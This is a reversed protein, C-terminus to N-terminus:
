PQQLQKPQVGQVTVQPVIALRDVCQGSDVRRMKEDFQFQEEEQKVMAVLVNAAAARTQMIRCTVRTDAAAPIPHSIIEEMAAAAKHMAEGKIGWNRLARITLKTDAEDHKDQLSGEGEASSLIEDSM